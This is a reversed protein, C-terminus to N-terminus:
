LSAQIEYVQSFRQIKIWFNEKKIRINTVNYLFILFNWFIVPFWFEPFGQIKLSDM